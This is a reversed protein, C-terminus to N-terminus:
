RLLVARAVAVKSSQELRLLYVGARLTRDSLILQHEGAAEGDLIRDFVRRGALDFVELRAPETSPLQYTVALLSLTPSRVGLRITAPAESPEDGEVAAMRGRQPLLRMRGLIEFHTTRGRLIAVTDHPALSLSDAAFSLVLDTRGDGNVDRWMPGHDDGGGERAGEREWDHQRGRDLPHGGARTITEVKVSDPSFDRGALVAVQLLGPRGRSGRERSHTLLEADVPQSFHLAQLDGKMSGDSGGYVLLQDGAPDFTIGFQTRPAPLDGAVLLPTWATSNALNLASVATNGDWVLLRDRLPDLAAAMEPSYYGLGLHPAEPGLPTWRPSDTGLPLAWCDFISGWARFGSRSGGVVLMRDRAADYGAWHRRRAGPSNVPTLRTWQNDVPSFSWVDDQDEVWDDARGRAYHVGGFLLFRDRLTDYVLSFEDRRPPLDGVIDLRRWVRPEDLSLAWVQMESAQFTGVWTNGISLLRNRPPDYVFNHDGCMQPIGTTPVQHWSRTDTLDLSWLDSPCGWLGGGFMLLKGGDRDAILTAADRRAPFTDPANADVKSWQSSSLDLEFCENRAGQGGFQILSGREPSYVASHGAVGPNAGTTPLQNWAPPAGADDTSMPLAWTDNAPVRCPGALGGSVLMRRHVPDMLSLHQRRPDPASPTDIRTWQMAGVLSLTWTDGFIPSSTFPVNGNWGGFLVMRDNWPDYVATAGKRPYPLPGSPGIQEWRPTGTLDLASTDNFYPDGYDYYAYLGGGFIVMRDLVPDFIAVHEARPPPPEGLTTLRAWAPADGLSLSWVENSPTFDHAGGFVIVRDRVSDYVATFGGRTSPFEAGRVPVRQWAHPGSAPLTLEWLEHLNDGNVLVMRHRRPDHIARADATQPPDIPGSLLNWVGDEVAGSPPTSPGRGPSRDPIRHGDDHSMVAPREQGISPAAVSPDGLTGQAPAAHVTVIGILLGLLLSRFALFCGIPTARPVQVNALSRPSSPRVSRAISVQVVPVRRM